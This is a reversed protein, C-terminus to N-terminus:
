RIPPDGSHRAFLVRAALAAYLACLLALLGFAIIVPGRMVPAALAAAIAIIVAGFASLAIAFKARPFLFVGIIVALAGLAVGLLRHREDYNTFGYRWIGSLGFLLYLVAATRFMWPYRVASM